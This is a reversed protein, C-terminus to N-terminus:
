PQTTGQNRVGALREWAIIAAGIAPANDGLEAEVIRVDAAHQPFAQPKARSLATQYYIASKRLSGGIVIVEPNFVDILNTLGAGLYAGAQILAGMAAEDGQEAALDLIRADPEEGEREAIQAVLGDPENAAIMRATEGLAKGSALVELCGFRGCPCRPGAPDMQMHGVEGAGGSAGRYLKGDLVLGGGVGTGPAVMVLHKTGRGAGIRHEALAGANVDNEIWSPLGTRESILKALPVDKWGPLNPPTTVIGEFTKTPGPTSIGIALVNRREIVARASAVMRDIVAEPGSDAETERRDEDVVNYERDVCLSLIKTGGLDLGIVYESMRVLSACPCRSTAM